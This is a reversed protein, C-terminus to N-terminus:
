SATTIFISSHYIQGCLWNQNHPRKTQLTDIISTGTKGVSVGNVFIEYYGHAGYGGSSLSGQIDVSCNETATYEKTTEIAKAINSTFFSFGGYDSYNVGFGSLVALALASNKKWSKKM